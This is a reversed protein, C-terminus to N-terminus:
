LKSASQQMEKKKEPETTEGAIDRSTRNIKNKEYLLRTFDNTYYEV